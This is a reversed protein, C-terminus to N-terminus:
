RTTLAHAKTRHAELIPPLDLTTLHGQEVVIKGNVMLTDVRAPHCLLLAGVPDHAGSYGIDDLAFIALDAAKGPALTGLDPRGLCAAGGLTALTFAELVSMADAGRALRALLLAQRVEALMHSADNSASGDVALSVPVGADQLESIKAIGSGLRMNSSPCHAVGVGAAGLRSIEEPSFHIGHALWTSDHLWGVRELYDLPRCGFRQLCFAEEDNTEALHTHLRVGNERALAATHQMLDTTVSFPSCPAFAIQTMAGPSPDHYTKILRASDKLIEEETQVVSDPPLGGDKQSLNMSGRCAHFRMGLETAAEIQIDIAHTSIGRPFVYHHDATTTCGSLMLEAMGVLTGLRVAEEDLRAWIPYLRQLWPFLEANMVPAYARTLTQYLHHHTNILGPLVVKGAANIVLAHAEQAVLHAYESDDCSGVAQIMGHQVYVYGNPQVPQQPDMTVVAAANIILCSPKQYYM